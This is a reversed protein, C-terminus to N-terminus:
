KTARPEDDPISKFIRAWVLVVVPLAIATTLRMKQAFHFHGDNVWKQMTDVTGRHNIRCANFEKKAIDNTHVFEEIADAHIYTRAVLVLSYFASGLFAIQVKCDAFNINRKSSSTIRLMEIERGIRQQELHLKELRLLLEVSRMKECEAREIRESSAFNGMTAFPLDRRQGFTDIRPHRPGNNVPFM